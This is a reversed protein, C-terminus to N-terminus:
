TGCILLFGRLDYSFVAKQALFHANVFPASKRNHERAM